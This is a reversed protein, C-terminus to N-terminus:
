AGVDQSGLPWVSWRMYYRWNEIRQYVNLKEELQAYGRLELERERTATQKGGQIAGLWRM